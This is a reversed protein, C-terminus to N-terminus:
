GAALPRPEIQSTPQSVELCVAGPLCERQLLGNSWFPYSLHIAACSSLREGVATFIERYGNPDCGRTDFVVVQAGRAWAAELAIRKRMNGGLQSIVWEQKWGLREVVARAAKRSMRGTHKLWTAVSPRAFLRRFGRPSETPRAEEVRAPCVYGPTPRKGTLIDGLVVDPYSRGEPLHLCLSEGQRVQFPPLRLTGLDIGDCVILELTMAEIESDFASGTGCADGGTACRYHAPIMLRNISTRGCDGFLLRRVPKEKGTERYIEWAAVM